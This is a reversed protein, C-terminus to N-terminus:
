EPFHCSVFDIHLFDTTYKYVLLSGDLFFILFDNIIANLFIFYKIFILGFLHFVQVSFVTFQQWFM